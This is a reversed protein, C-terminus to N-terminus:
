LLSFLENKAANKPSKQTIKKIKKIKKSQSELYQHPIISRNNNVNTICKMYLFPM